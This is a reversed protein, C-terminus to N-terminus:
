WKLNFEYRPTPIEQPHPFQNYNQELENKVSSNNKIWPLNLVDTYTQSYPINYVPTPLRPPQEVTNLLKEGMVVKFMDVTRMNNVWFIMAKIKHARQAQRVIPEFERALTGADGLGPFILLVEGTDLVDQPDKYPKIRIPLDQTKPGWGSVPEHNLTYYKPQTPPFPPTPQCLWNSHRSIEAEPDNGGEKWYGGSQGDPQPLTQPFRVTVQQGFKKTLEQVVQTWPLKTAFHWMSQYNRFTRYPEYTPKSNKKFMQQNKQAENYQTMSPNGLNINLPNTQDLMEITQIMTRINKIQQPLTPQYKPPLEQAGRNISQPGCTIALTKIQTQLQELIPDKTPTRPQYQRLQQNWRKEKMKNEIEQTRRIKALNKKQEELSEIKRELKQIKSEFDHTIQKIKDKAQQAQKQIFNYTTTLTSIENSHTRLIDNIENSHKNLLADKEDQLNQNLTKLDEIRQGHTGNLKKINAKYNNYLDELDQEYVKQNDMMETLIEAKETNINKQQNILDVIQNRAVTLDNQSLNLQDLTNVYEKELSDFANGMTQQLQKILISNRSNAERLTNEFEQTKQRLKEILDVKENNLQQNAEILGQIQTKAKQHNEKSLNFSQLLQNYKGTLQKIEQRIRNRINQTEKQSTQANEYKRNIDQLQQKLNLVLVKYEDIQKNLETIDNLLKQNHKHIPIIEDRYNELQVLETKLRAITNKYTDLLSDTQKATRLTSAYLKEKENSLEGQNRIEKKLTEITNNLTEIKNEQRIYIKTRKNIEQVFQKNADLIADENSQNIDVVRTIQAEYYKRQTELEKTLQEEKLKLNDADARTENIMNQATNLKLNLEHVTQASYMYDDNPLSSYNHIFNPDFEPETDQSPVTNSDEEEEDSYNIGPQTKLMNRIYQLNQNSSEFIDDFVRKPFAQGTEPDMSRSENSTTTHFEQKDNDSTVPTLKVSSPTSTYSEQDDNNDSTVPTSPKIPTLKVSNPTSTNTYSDQDDNSVSDSDSQTDDYKNTGFNYKPDYIETMEIDTQSQDTELEHLAQIQEDRGNFHDDEDLNELMEILQRRLRNMKQKTNEVVDHVRKGIDWISSKTPVQIDVKLQKYLHIFTTLHSNINTINDIPANKIQAFLTFLIAHTDTLKTVLKEIESITAGGSLEVNPQIDFGALPDLNLSM